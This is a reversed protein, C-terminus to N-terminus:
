QLLASQLMWPLEFNVWFKVGKFGDDRGTLFFDFRSLDVRFMLLIYKPQTIDEVKENKVHM